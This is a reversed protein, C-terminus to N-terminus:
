FKVLPLLKMNYSRTETSVRSGENPSINGSTAPQQLNFDTGPPATRSRAFQLDEMLFRFTPSRRHSHDQLADQELSGVVNGVVGNAGTRSASDSDKPTTPGLGRIFVDDMYPVKYQMFSVDFIAQAVQNATFSSAIEVKAILAGPFSPESGAGDVEFWFVTKRGSPCNLEFFDGATITNGALCEAEVIQPVSATGTQLVTLIIGASSSVPPDAVGITSCTFDIDNAILEVYHSDAGIGYINTEGNDYYLNGLAQIGASTNPGVMDYSSGDCQAWGPPVVNSTYWMFSGTPLSSSVISNLAQAVNSPTQTFENYYGILRAGDNNQTNVGYSNLWESVTTGLTQSLDYYGVLSAGDAGQTESALEQRLTSCDPNEEPLVAVIGGGAAGKWIYGPDLTPVINRNSTDPILSSIEYRLSRDDFKSQNQQIVLMERGFDDDLNIGNITQAAIYNTNISAEVARSLTVTDGSAPITTFTVTGGTLNGADQVTYDVNLTQIDSNENAQQGAPTIYVDIDQIEPILFTYSYVDTVGDAVYQKITDQQPLDSM